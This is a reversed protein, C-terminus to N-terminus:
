RKSAASASVPQQAPYSFDLYPSLRAIDKASFATDAALRQLSSIHGYTKRLHLIGNAQPRSIYPHRVLTRYSATNVNIKAPRASPDVRFWRVNESGLGYVEAVQKASVYGGLSRGYSIIHRAIVAGVGPVRMLAATDASNLDATEGAHLKEPGAYKAAPTYEKSFYRKATPAAAIRVYPALRAYDEAPMNYIRALDAAKRFSGGANRYHIIAAAERPLLGLRTLAASDATNPDFPSLHWERTTAYKGKRPYKETAAESVSFSNFRGVTSTDPSVVDGPASARHAYLAIGFAACIAVGVALLGLRDSKGLRGWLSM